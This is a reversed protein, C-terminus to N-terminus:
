VKTALILDQSVTLQREDVLNDGGSHLLVGHSVLFPNQALHLAMADINEKGEVYRRGACM